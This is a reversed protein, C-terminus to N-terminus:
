HSSSKPSPNNIDFIRNTVLEASADLLWTKSITIKAINAQKTTPM